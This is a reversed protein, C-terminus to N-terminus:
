AVSSIEGKEYIYVNNTLRDEPKVHEANVFQVMSLLWCMDEGDKIPACILEHISSPLIAFHSGIENTLKDFISNCIIGGAGFIGSENTVVLMSLLEEGDSIDSPLEDVMETIVDLIPIVKCKQEAHEKAVKLLESFPIQLSDILDNSVKYSGVANPYQEGCPDVPVYFVVILDMFSIYALGEKEIEALNDKSFVRPLVNDLIYERSTISKLNVNYNYSNIYLNKLYLVVDTDSKSWITNDSYIIPSCNVSSSVLFAGEKNGNNKFFEKYQLEFEENVLLENIKSIRNKLECM